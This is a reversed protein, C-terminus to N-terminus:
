LDKGSLKKKGRETPTGGPQTTPERREVRKRKAKLNRVGIISSLETMTNRVKRGRYYDKWSDQRYKQRSTPQRCSLPCFFVKSM